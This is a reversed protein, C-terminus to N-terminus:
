SVDVADGIAPAAADFGDERLESAFWSCSDGHTV